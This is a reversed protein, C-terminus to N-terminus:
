QMKSYTFLEARKNLIKFSKIEGEVHNPYNCILSKTNIQTSGVNEIMKLRFSHEQLM